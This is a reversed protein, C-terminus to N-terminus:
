NKKCVGEEKKRARKAHHTVRIGRGAWERGGGEERYLAETPKRLANYHSAL